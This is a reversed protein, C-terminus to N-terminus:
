LPYDVFGSMLVHFYPFGEGSNRLEVPSLTHREKSETHRTSSM